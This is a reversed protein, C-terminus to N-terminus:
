YMRRFCQYKEEMNGQMGNCFVMIKKNLATLVEFGKNKCQIMILISSWFDVEFSM